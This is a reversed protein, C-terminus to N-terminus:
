ARPNPTTTYMGKAALELARRMTARDLETFIM